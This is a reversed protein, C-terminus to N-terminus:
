YVMLLSRQTQQSRLSREQDPKESINGCFDTSLGSHRIRRSIGAVLGISGDSDFLPGGSSGGHIKAGHVIFKTDKDFQQLINGGGERKAM